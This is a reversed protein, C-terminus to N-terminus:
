CVVSSSERTEELSVDYNDNNKKLGFRMCLSSALIGSTPRPLSASAWPVMCGATVDDSRPSIRHISRQPPPPVATTVMVAAVQKCKTETFLLLCFNRYLIVDEVLTSHSLQTCHQVYASSVQHKYDSTAM